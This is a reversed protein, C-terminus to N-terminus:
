RLPGGSRDHARKDETPRSDAVAPKDQWKELTVAGAAAAPPAAPDSPPDGPDREFEPHGPVSGPAEGEVFGDGDRDGATGPQDTRGGPNTDKDIPTPITDGQKREQPDKKKDHAHETKM